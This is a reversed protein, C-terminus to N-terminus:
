VIEALRRYEATSDKLRRALNVKKTTESIDLLAQSISYKKEKEVIWQLVESLHWVSPNGTHIPLPTDSNSLLLKRANQRSHGLIEAIDTISVYDPSAEILESKPIAKKIDKIASTVAEYASISERIFNLAIVGKRGVSVLADDCGAEYLKDIYNDPDDNSTPLRFILEFEYKNM